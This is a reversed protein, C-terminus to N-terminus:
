YPKGVVLRCRADRSSSQRPAEDNSLSVETQVSTGTLGAFIVGAFGGCASRLPIGGRPLYEAGELPCTKVFALRQM